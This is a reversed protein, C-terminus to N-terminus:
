RETIAITQYQHVLAGPTSNGTLKANANRTGSRHDAQRFLVSQNVRRLISKLTQVRCIKPDASANNLSNQTIYAFQVQLEKEFRSM